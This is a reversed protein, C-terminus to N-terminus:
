YLQCPYHSYFVITVIARALLKLTELPVTLVYKNKLREYAESVVIFEDNYIKEFLHFGRKIGCHM